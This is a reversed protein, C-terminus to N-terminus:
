MIVVWKKGQRESNETPFHLIEVLQKIFYEESDALLSSHHFILKTPFEIVAYKRTKAATQLHKHYSYSCFFGM